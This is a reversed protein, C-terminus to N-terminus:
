FKPPPVEVEVLESSQQSIALHRLGIRYGSYRITKALNKRGSVKVRIGKFRLDPLPVHYDHKFEVEEPGTEFLEMDYRRLITGLTPFLEAHALEIGICKRGGKNFAMQYKGLEKEWGHYLTRIQHPDKDRKIAVPAYITDLFGVDKIHVERPTIRVIPGYQEHLEKIKWCFRAPQVADYYFEYWATLAALKPGPISALPSLYLRWVATCFVYGLLLCTATLVVNAWILFSM